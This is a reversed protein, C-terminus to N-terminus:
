DRLGKLWRIIEKEGKQPTVKHGGGVVVYRSKPHAPARDYAYNKGRGLRLMTDKEGIIWMLATGPKLRAANRPMVAPGNPEYWSLYIEATARVKSLQGQNVDNFDAVKGGEGRAVIKRARLYDNEMRKQFGKVEPVHGPAIALIGALGNRRAGYGIAANAGISHGGVVIFKAGSSKLQEVYGDIETMSDEYSLDWIRSRSWPMEPALVLFGARKLVGTLKGVPSKPNATRGKGHMLIVGVKEEASLGAAPLGFIVWFVALIFVASINKYM